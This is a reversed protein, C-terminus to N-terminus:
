FICSLYFRELFLFNSVAYYGPWFPRLRKVGALGARAGALRWSAGPEWMVVGGGGRRPHMVIEPNKYIENFL